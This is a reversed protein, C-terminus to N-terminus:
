LRWGKLDEPHTAAVADLVARSFRDALERTQFSVLPQWVRKGDDGLKHRGDRDLVPRAPPSAWCHGNTEAVHVAVDALRLGSPFEVTAFGRLSTGKRCPTWQLVTLIETEM